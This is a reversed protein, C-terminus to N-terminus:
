IVLLLSFQSCLIVSLLGGSFLCDLFKVDEFLRLDRCAVLLLSYVFVHQGIIEYLLLAHWNDYKAKLIDMGDQIEQLCSWFSAPEGKDDGVYFLVDMGDQIKKIKTAIRKVRPQSIQWRAKAKSGSSVGTRSTVVPAVSPVAASADLVVAPAAAVAPMAAVVSM